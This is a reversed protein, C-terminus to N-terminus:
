VYREPHELVEKPLFERMTTKVGDIEIIQEKNKSKVYHKLAEVQKVNLVIQSTQPPQSSVPPASSAGTEFKYNVWKGEQVKTVTFSGMPLKKYDEYQRASLFTTVNLGNYGLTTLYSTVEGEGFDKVIARGEEFIKELQVVEGVGMHSFKINNYEGNKIVNM